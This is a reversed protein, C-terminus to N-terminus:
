DSGSSKVAMRSENQEIINYPISQFAFKILQIEILKVENKEEKLGVMQPMHTIEFLLM